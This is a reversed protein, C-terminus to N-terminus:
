DSKARREALHQIASTVSRGRANIAKFLNGFYYGTGAYRAAETQRSYVDFRPSAPGGDDFYTNVYLTNSNIEHPVNEHTTTAATVKGLDTFNGIGSYKGAVAGAGSVFSTRTNTVARFGQFLRPFDSSVVLANVRDKVPNPFFGVGSYSEANNGVGNGLWGIANGDPIYHIFQVGQSAPAGNDFSPNENRPQQAFMPLGLLLLLSLALLRKMM